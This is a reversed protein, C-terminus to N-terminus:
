HWILDQQTKVQHHNREGEANVHPSLCGARTEKASVLLSKWSSIECKLSNFLSWYVKLGRKWLKEMIWAHKFINPPVIWHAKQDQWWCQGVCPAQGQAPPAFHPLIPCFAAFRCELFVNQTDRVSFRCFRCFRRFRCSSVGKSLGERDQVAFGMVDWIVSMQKVSRVQWPLLRNTALSNCALYNGYRGNNEM